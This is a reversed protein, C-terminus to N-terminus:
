KIIPVRADLVRTVQGRAVGLAELADALTALLM